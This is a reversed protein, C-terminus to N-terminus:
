ARKGFQSQVSGLENAALSRMLELAESRTTQIKRPEIDLNEVNDFTVLGSTYVSLCWGSPLRISVSVHEHDPEAVDLEAILIALVSPDNCRESKGWRHLIFFDM